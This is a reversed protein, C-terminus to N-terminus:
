TAMLALLSPHKYSCRLKFRLTSVSTFYVFDSVYNNGDKNQQKIQTVEVIGTSWIKKLSLFFKEM